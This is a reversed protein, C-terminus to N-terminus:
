KHSIDGQKSGTEQAEGRAGVEGKDCDGEHNTLTKGGLYRGAARSLSLM